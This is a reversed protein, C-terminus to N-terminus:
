KQRNYEELFRRVKGTCVDSGPQINLKEAIEGLLSRAAAEDTFEIELEFDTKDLYESRDLDLEAGDFQKVSRTTSLAGLRKVDPLKDFGEPCLLEGSSLTEPLSDLPKELEVRSFERAAPFKMQLFCGNKTERVRCTIHMKSLQLEDTDYYHNTQFITKDWDYLSLLKNYQEFTLMLKFENEIM